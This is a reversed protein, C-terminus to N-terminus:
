DQVGYMDVKYVTFVLGKCQAYWGQVSNKGIGNVQCVLRKFNFQAYWGQVSIISVWYLTCILM